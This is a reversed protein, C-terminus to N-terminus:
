GASSRNYSQTISQASGLNHQLTNQLTHLPKTGQLVYHVDQLESSTILKKM